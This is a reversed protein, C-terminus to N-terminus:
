SFYEKNEINHLKNVTIFNRTVPLM